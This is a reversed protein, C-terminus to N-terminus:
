DEEGDDVDEVQIIENNNGSIEQDVIIVYRDFNNEFVLIALAEKFFIATDSLKNGMNIEKFHANETSNMALNLYFFIDKDISDFDLM